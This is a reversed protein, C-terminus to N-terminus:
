TILFVGPLIFGYNNGFYVANIAIFELMPKKTVTSVCLNGNNRKWRTVVFETRFNAGMIAKLIVVM